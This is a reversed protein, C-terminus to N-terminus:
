SEREGEQLGVGVRGLKYVNERLLYTFLHIFM